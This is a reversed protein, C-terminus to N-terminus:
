EFVANKICYCKYLELIELESKLLKQIVKKKEEIVYLLLKKGIGNNQFKEKVALNMVEMTHPKTEMILIVGVTEGDIEATYCIGKDLYSKVLKESPDALLLLAMPADMQSNLKSVSINM